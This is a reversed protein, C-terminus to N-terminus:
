VLEVKLYYIVMQCSVRAVAPYVRKASLCGSVTLPVVGRVYSNMLVPSKRLSETVVESLIVHYSM